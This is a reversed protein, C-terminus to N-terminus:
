FKYYLRYSLLSLLCCEAILTKLEISAITNLFWLVSLDAKGSCLWLRLLSGESSTPAWGASDERTRLTQSGARRLGREIENTTVLWEDM